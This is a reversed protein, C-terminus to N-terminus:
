SQEPLDGPRFIGYLCPWCGLYHEMPLRGVDRWVPEKGEQAYQRATERIGVASSFFVFRAPDLGARVVVLRPGIFPVKFHEVSEVVGFRESLLKLPFVGFADCYVYLASASEVLKGRENSSLDAYDGFDLTVPSSTLQPELGSEFSFPRSMSVCADPPSVWAVTADVEEHSQDISM